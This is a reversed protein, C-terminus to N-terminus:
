ESLQIDEAARRMLFPVLTFRRLTERICQYTYTLSRAHEVTVDGDVGVVERIEEYV